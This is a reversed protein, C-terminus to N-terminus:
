GGHIDSIGASQVGLVSKQESIENRGTGKVTKASM